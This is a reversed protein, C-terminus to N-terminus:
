EKRFFMNGYRRSHFVYYYSSHQRYMVPETAIIHHTLSDADNTFQWRYHLLGSVPVQEFARSFRRIVKEHDLVELVVSDQDTILIRYHEYQWDAQLGPFMDRDIRYTGIIDARTPQIPAHRAENWMGLLFIVVLGIFGTAYLLAISALTAPRRDAPTLLFWVICVIGSLLLMPFFLLNFGFGMTIAQRATYDDGTRRIKRLTNRFADTNGAM